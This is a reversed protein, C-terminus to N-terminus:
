FGSTTDPYNTHTDNPKHKQDWCARLRFLPPQSPFRECSWRTREARGHSLCPSGPGAAPELWLKEFPSEQAFQTKIQTTSSHMHQDPKYKPFDHFGAPVTGRISAFCCGKSNFPTGSYDNYSSTNEKQTEHAGELDKFSISWTIAWPHCNVTSSTRCILKKFRLEPECRAKLPSHLSM